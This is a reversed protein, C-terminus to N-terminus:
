WESNALERFTVSEDSRSRGPALLNQIQQTGAEAPIVPFLRYPSKTIM